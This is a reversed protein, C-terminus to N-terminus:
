GFIRNWQIKCTHSHMPQRYVILWTNSGASRGVIKIKQADGPKLWSKPAVLWMYGHADGHQDSEVTTFSLKGGDATKIEWNKKTTTPIEFRKENNLYLDFIYREPTLDFAAIWLFGAENKSLNEPIKSTEWEIAMKGDTCRTILADSVDSRFSSYSFENGGVNKQFGEVWNKSLGALDFVPKQDDDQANVIFGAFFLFLAITTLKLKM